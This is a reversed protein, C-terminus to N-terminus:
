AKPLDIMFHPSPILLTAPTSPSSSYIRTPFESQQKNYTTGYNEEDANIEGQLWLESCPGRM